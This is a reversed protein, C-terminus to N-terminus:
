WRHGTSGSQEWPKPRLRLTRRPLPPEEIPPAPEWADQEQQDDTYEPQEEDEEFANAQDNAEQAAWLRGFQQSRRLPPLAAEQGQDYSDDFEAPEEEVPEYGELDEEPQDDGAPELEEAKRAVGKRAATFRALIGCLVLWAALGALSMLAAAIGLTISVKLVRAALGGLLIGAFSFLATLTDYGVFLRSLRNHDGTEVLTTQASLLLIGNAIGMTGAWFLAEGFNHTTVFATTALGMGLTAYTFTTTPQLHADFHRFLVSGLLVGAANVSMILGVYAGPQSLYSSVFFVELVNLIGGALAILAVILAVRAFPHQQLVVRISKIWDAIGARLVSQTWSGEEDDDATAQAEEEEAPLSEDETGAQQRKRRASIARVKATFQRDMAQAGGASLLLLFGTALLGLVPNGQPFLLMPLLFLTAALIPGFITMIAVSGQIRSVGRPHESPPVVANLASRQAALSFRSMLGIVFCLLCITALARVPSILPLLTLTLLLTCIGRVIDTVFMTKRRSWRETAAEAFPGFLVYAAGLAGLALALSLPSNTSMGLWIILTTTFLADCLATISQKLWLLAFDTSILIKGVPGKPPHGIRIRRRPPRQM